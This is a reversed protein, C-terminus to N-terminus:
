RRENHEVSGYRQRLEAVRETLAASTPPLPQWHVGWDDEATRLM